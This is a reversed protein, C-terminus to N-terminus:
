LSKVKGICLTKMFDTMTTNEHKKIGHFYKSVDKGGGKLLPKAGGPHHDIFKTVDYVFGDIILWLDTESNHTSIEFLTYEPLISM